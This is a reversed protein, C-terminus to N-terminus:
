PFSTHALMKQAYPLFTPYIKTPPFKKQDAYNSEVYIVVTKGQTRLVFIRFLQGPRGVKVDKTEGHYTGRCFGCHNNVTFPNISLGGTGPGDDGTVTANFM